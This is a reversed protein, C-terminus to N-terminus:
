LGLVLRRASPKDGTSVERTGTMSSAMDAEGAPASSADASAEKAATWEEVREDWAAEELAAWMESKETIYEEKFLGLSRIQEARAAAIEAKAAEEAQKDAEAKLASLEDQASKLELNAKDLEATLREVEAAQESKETSLEANATELEQLKGTLEAKDNETAAAADTLAKALLAEHTEKSIMMEQPKTDMHQNTGGESAATVVVGLGEVASEVRSKVTEFDKPTYASAASDDQLFELSKKAHYATDIPFRKIGDSQFGPDAYEVDGFPASKAAEDLRSFGSPIGSQLLSWDTCFPCIDSDHRANDPQSELLQDHLVLATNEM